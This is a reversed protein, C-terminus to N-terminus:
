VENHDDDAGSASVADVAGAPQIEEKTLILCNTESCPDRKILLNVACSASLAPM